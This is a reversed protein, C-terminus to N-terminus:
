FYKKFRDFSQQPKYIDFEKIGVTHIFSFVTDIFRIGNAMIYKDIDSELDFHFVNQLATFFRNIITMIVDDEKQHGDYETNKTFMNALHKTIISEINDIDSDGDIFDFKLYEPHYYVIYSLVALFFIDEMEDPDCSSKWNEYGGRLSSAGM